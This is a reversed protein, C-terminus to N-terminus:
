NVTVYVVTGGYYVPRYYVGGAYYCNYGGYVVPQAGMPVTRVYGGAYGATGYHSVYGSSYHGSYATGYRGSVATANPGSYAGWYRGGAASRGNAGQAAYGRPGVYASGGRSTNYVTGRGASYSSVGYPRAEAASAALLVVAGALLAITPLSKM